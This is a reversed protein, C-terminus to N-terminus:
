KYNTNDRLHFINPRSTLTLHKLLGASYVQVGEPNFHVHDRKFHLNYSKPVCDLYLVGDEQKGRNKLYTNVKAISELIRSNHRRPPIASVTIISTPLYKRVEAILSEYSQVVRSPEHDELDNGGCQLIINKPHQTKNSCLFRIRSKIYNLDMGPYTYAITDVGHSNLNSSAGRILSTGILWTSCSQKQVNNQAMQQPSHAVPAIKSAFRANNPQSSVGPVPANNTARTQNRKDHQTTSSAVSAYSQLNYQTKHETASTNCSANLQAKDIM